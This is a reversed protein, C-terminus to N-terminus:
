TAAAGRRRSRAARRAAAGGQAGTPVHLERLSAPDPRSSHGRRRHERAEAARKTSIYGSDERKFARLEDGTSQAAAERTHVGDKVRSRVMGFYFEDPNRFAAKERLLNLADQKRHYDAARLKYDKRKELLGLRQRVAPQARERYTRTKLVHKLGGMTRSTGLWAHTTRAGIPRTTIYETCVASYM